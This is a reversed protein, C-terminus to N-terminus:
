VLSIRLKWRQQCFLSHLEQQIKNKYAGYFIHCQLSLIWFFFFQWFTRGISMYIEPERRPAFWHDDPSFFPRFLFVQSKFFRGVALDQYAPPSPQSWLKGSEYRPRAVFNEPPFSAGVYFILRGYRKVSMLCSVACWVRYNYRRIARPVIYFIANATSGIDETPNPRAALRM